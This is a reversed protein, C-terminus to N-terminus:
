TGPLKTRSRRPDAITVEAGGTANDAEIVARNEEDDRWFLIRDGLSQSKRVTGVEEWDVQSRILPDVANAGASAVLARESASANQGLTEGFATVTGSRQPDVELPLAQGAGPPRLSYEPPVTLPPKTVVLFEDQRGDNIGRDRSGACGVVTSLALLLCPALLAHRM